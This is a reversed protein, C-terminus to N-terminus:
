FKRSGCESGVHFCIVRYLTLYFARHLYILCYPYIYMYVRATIFNQRPLLRLPPVLVHYYVAHICVLLM